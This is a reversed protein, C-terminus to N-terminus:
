YLEAHFSVMAFRIKLKVFLSCIINSTSFFSCSYSILLIEFSVGIVSELRMVAQTYATDMDICQQKSDVPMDRFCNVCLM